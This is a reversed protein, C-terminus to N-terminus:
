KVVSLEFYLESPALIFAFFKEYIRPFRNAFWDVLLIKYPSFFYKDLSFRIRRSVIQFKFKTYFNYEINGNSSFHDFSRYGFAVKHTLDSYFNDSAYHPVRVFIKSNPKAIRHVEALTGVIDNSHELFHNAFVNDISSEAFPWPFINLDAVVDVGPLKVSDVGICNAQKSAGCGLDINM